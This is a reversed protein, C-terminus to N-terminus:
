AKAIRKAMKVAPENKLKSREFLLSLPYIAAARGLTVVLIVVIVPWWANTYNEKAECLGILLFILSASSRRSSGSTWGHSAGWVPIPFPLGFNGVLAAILVLIEISTITRKM